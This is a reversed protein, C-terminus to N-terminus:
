GCGAVANLTLDVEKASLRQPTPGYTSLTEPQSEKPTCFPPDSYNPLSLRRENSAYMARMM